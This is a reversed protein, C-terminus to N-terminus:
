VNKFLPSPLPFDVTFYRGKKRSRPRPHNPWQQTWSKRSISWEQTQFNSEVLLFTLFFGAVLFCCSQQRLLLIGCASCTLAWPSSPPWVCAARSRLFQQCTRALPSSSPFTPPPSIPLPDATPLWWSRPTDLVM